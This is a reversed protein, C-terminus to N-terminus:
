RPVAAFRFDSLWRGKRWYISLGRQGSLNGDLYAVAGAEVWEADLAVIPFELQKEPYTSGVALLQPFNASRLGAKDLISEVGDVGDAAMYRGFHILRLLIKEKKSRKPPPIPIHRATIGPNRWDYHGADVMQKFTQSYDVTVVLPQEEAYKLM